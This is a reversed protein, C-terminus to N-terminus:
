ARGKFEGKPTAGDRSYKYHQAETNDHIHNHFHAELEALRKELLLVRSELATNTAVNRPADIGLARRAGFVNNGNVFFGLTETAYAAFEEDTQRRTVYDREVLQMLKYQKDLTLDNRTKKPKTEESM